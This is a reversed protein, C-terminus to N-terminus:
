AYAGSGAESHLMAEPLNLELQCPAAQLDIVRAGIGLLRVPKNGRAFADLLLSRYSEASRQAGQRELTTQTFDHFKVKVFPKGIAYSSDLRDIRGQLDTILAPLKELCDAVTPLDEDYTEEVSVSQRRSIQVPRNDIGHALQWLYEGFSGFHRLLESLERQRLDACTLIHMRHLHAATVKGVGHLRAVPLVSVFAEVQDPAIVFLGAPKKWDSAIKALFKNPAVGASATIGVEERIRKQIERAIRTARNGHHTSETVDLYAEDLSLPEIVPTYDLFIQRIQRSVTKYVDFRPRIFLLNPCLRRAKSCAMASRVGHARAEYNCTAVVGRSDPNGGVSIPKGVLSPDDRMEVAAFFCDCDIHIIKRTAPTNM